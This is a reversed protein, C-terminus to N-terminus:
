APLALMFWRCILVLRISLLPGLISANFIQSNQFGIKAVEVTFHREASYSEYWSITNKSFRVPLLKNLLIKHNITDFAKLLDILIMDTYMGNDFGKLIKGNLFSLFPCTWFFTAWRSMAFVSWDCIKTKNSFSVEYSSKKKGVLTKLWTVFVKHLM